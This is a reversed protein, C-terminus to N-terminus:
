GQRRRLRTTMVGLSALLLAATTPEPVQAPLALFGRIEGAPFVTSHVNFYARGQEIGTFLASEALLVAGGSETIWNARYSAPDTTDFTQDYTGTTVGLPFNPLIPVTAVPGITDLVNADGPGNIVHIHAATTAGLLQQFSTDIRLTHAAADITVSVTGFGNSLNAPSEAAGDLTAVYTVPVACVPGAVVAALVALLVSNKKM